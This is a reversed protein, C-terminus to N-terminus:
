AKADKSQAAAFQECEDAPTQRQRARHYSLQNSAEPSAAPSVRRKYTVPTTLSRRAPRLHPVTLCTVTRRYTM